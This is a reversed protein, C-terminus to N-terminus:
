EKGTQVEGRAKLCLIGYGTYGLALLQAELDFLFETPPSLYIMGTLSIFITVTVIAFDTNRHLVPHHRWDM